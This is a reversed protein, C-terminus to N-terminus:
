PRAALMALIPDKAEHIFFHKGPFFFSKFIATTHLSWGEIYERSMRPDDLSGFAVIPCSLPEDAAHVYNEFARFDARLIPLLLRMAEDNQLLQAPVGNMSKLESLFEAAPLHHIPPHVRPLHPAACASIFLLDPHLNKRRLLRALEFAILGGLSHGFFSFSKELLPEIARALGEALELVEEILPENFRSGRGPYHVIWGEISDPLAACWASFAAPGGGAHPFFFLRGPAGPKAQPCIFWKNTETRLLHSNM